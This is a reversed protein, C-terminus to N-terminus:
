RGAKKIAYAAHDDRDKGIWFGFLMGVAITAVCGAAAGVAFWAFAGM